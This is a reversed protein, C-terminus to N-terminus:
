RVPATEHADLAAFAEFGRMLRSSIHHTRRLDFREPAVGGGVHIAGSAPAGGGAEEILRAYVNLQILHEAKARQALKADEPEYVPRGAADEGTRVLFDPYGVWRDNAFAAQYILPAGAAMAEATLSLREAFPGGSPISVAPGHLAELDALVRAEHEFGKERVLELSPNAEPPPEVGALWLASRHRCGLFDNLRSASLIKIMSDM